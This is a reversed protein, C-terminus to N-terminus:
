SVVFTCLWILLEVALNCKIASCELSRFNFIVVMYVLIRLKQPVTKNGLDYLTPIVKLCQKRNERAVSGAPAAASLIRPLVAQVVPLYASVALIILFLFIIDAECFPSLHRVEQM